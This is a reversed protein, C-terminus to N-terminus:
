IAEAQRALLTFDEVYSLWRRKAERWSIEEFLYPPLKPIPDFGEMAYWAKKTPRMVFAKENAIIRRDYARVIDSEKEPVPIGRARLSRRMAANAARSMRRFEPNRDKIPSRMDGYYAEEGDHFLADLVLVPDHTEEWIAYALACQHQAVWYPYIAAGGYRSITATQHAIDELNYPNQDLKDDNYYFAEGTYTQSWFDRDGPNNQIADLKAVLRANEDMAM